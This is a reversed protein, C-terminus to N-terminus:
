TRKNLVPFKTTMSAHRLQKLVRHCIIYIDVFCLYTNGDMLSVLHRSHGAAESCFEVHPGHLLAKGENSRLPKPKMAELSPLFDYIDCPAERSRTVELLRLRRSFNQKHKANQWVKTPKLVFRLCLRIRSTKSGLCKELTSISRVLNFFWELCCSFIIM